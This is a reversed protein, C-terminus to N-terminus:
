RVAGMLGRLQGVQDASLVGAATWRVVGHPAIFITIPTATFNNSDSDTEDLKIVRADRPLESSEMFAANIKGTVDAWLTQDAPVYKVIDIWNHMNIKCYPCVPSFVLLLTGTERHSLNVSLRQGSITRGHLSAIISGISPGQTLSHSTAEQALVYNQQKLNHIRLLLCGCYATLSLVAAACVKSWISSVNTYKM